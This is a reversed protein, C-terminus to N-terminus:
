PKAPSLVALRRWHPAVALAAKLAFLGVAALLSSVALPPVAHASGSRLACSLVLLAVILAYSISQAGAFRARTDIFAGFTVLAAVSAFPLAALVGDRALGHNGAADAVAALVVLLM